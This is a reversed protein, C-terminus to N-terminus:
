TTSRLALLEQHLKKIEENLAKLEDHPMKNRMGKVFEKQLICLQSQLEIIRPLQKNLSLYFLTSLWVHSLFLILCSIFVRNPTTGNNCFFVISVPIIPHFYISRSYSLM